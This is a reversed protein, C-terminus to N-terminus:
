PFDRLIAHKHSVQSREFASLLCRPSLRTHPWQEWRDRRYSLARQGSAFRLGPPCPAITRRLGWSPGRGQGRLTAPGSRCRPGPTLSASDPLGTASLGPRGPMALRLTWPGPDLALAGCQRRGGAEQPPPVAGRATARSGRGRTQPQQLCQREGWCPRRPAQSWALAPAGWSGPHQGRTTSTGSCGCPRGGQVGGTRHSSRPLRGASGQGRHPRM